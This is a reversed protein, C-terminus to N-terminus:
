PLLDGSPSIFGLGGSYCAVADVFQGGRETYNSLYEDYRFYLIIPGQPTLEHLKVSLHRRKSHDESREEPCLLCFWCDVCISM